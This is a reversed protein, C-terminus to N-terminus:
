IVPSNEGAYYEDICASVIRNLRDETRTSLMTPITMWVTKLDVLLQEARVRQLRAKACSVRLAKRLDVDIDAQSSSHIEGECLSREIAASLEAVDDADLHPAIVTGRPARDRGATAVTSSSLSLHPGTENKTRDM